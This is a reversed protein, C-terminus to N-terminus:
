SNLSKTKNVLMELSMPIFENTNKDQAWVADDDVYVTLGGKGDVNDSIRYLMLGNSHITRTPVFMLNKSNIFEEAVEFFTIERQNHQQEFNFKRKDEVEKIGYQPKTLKVSAENGLAMAQNMLDLGAKFGDGFKQNAHLYEPFYSKWYSYWQAVQDFNPKPQILWIYLIDIWKPFFTQQFISVFVKLRITDKWELVRDLPKMDQNRPNISFDERLHSSLKPVIYRLMLDDWESGRHVNKWNLLDIPLGEEVQWGKLWSRLKRKSSDLVQSLRDQVFPLWPFIFAHLPKPHSPKWDDVSKQVKPLILQDMVNDFVFKPLIPYWNDIIKVAIHPENANWENILSARVRPLWCNWILSEYPTMILQENDKNNSQSPEFDEDHKSKILQKQQKEEETENMIFAKKWKKFESLWNLEDHLPNWDNLLDKVTPTIAGIVLEDLKYQKYEDPYTSILYLIPETFLDIIPNSLISAEKAANNLSDAIEEIKKLREIRFLDSDVTKVIMKEQELLAKRRDQIVRGEKAIGELQGRSEDVIIKLNHRLEPIRSSESTPTWTSLHSALSSTIERPQSNM